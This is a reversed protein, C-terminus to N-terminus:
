KGENFESEKSEMISEIELPTLIKGGGRLSQKARTVIENLDKRKEIAVQRNLDAIRASLTDGQYKFIAEKQRSPYMLANVIQDRRTPDSTGEQRLATEIANMLDALDQGGIKEENWFIRNALGALTYEMMGPLPEVTKEAEFKGKKSMEKIEAFYPKLDKSIQDNKQDKIWQHAKLYAEGAIRGQKRNEELVAEAASADGTQTYAFKVDVTAASTLDKNETNIVDKLRKIQPNAKDGYTAQMNRQYELLELNRKAIDKTPDLVSEMTTDTIGKMEAQLAQERAKKVAKMQQDAAQMWKKKEEDPIATTEKVLQEFMAKDAEMLFEDNDAYLTALNRSLYSDEVRKVESRVFAERNEPLVKDNAWSQATLRISERNRLYSEDDVASDVYNQQTQTYSAQVRADTIRTVHGRYQTERANRELELWKNFLERGGDNAFTDPAASQNNIQKFAKTYIDAAEEETTAKKSDQNAQNLIVMANSRMRNSDSKALDLNKKEQDLRAQEADYEQKDGIAEFGKGLNAVGRGAASIGAAAAGGGFAEVPANIRQRGVSEVRPVSSTYDIKPARPM